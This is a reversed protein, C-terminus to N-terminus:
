PCHTEGSRPAFVQVSATQLTLVPEYECLLPGAIMTSWANNEDAFGEDDSQLGTSQKRAVILTFRHHHLDAYFQDLYEMNHSMAMEMLIVVEYDPVLPVDDLMRYMVLQRETIFLVRGNNMNASDVAQRITQLDDQVLAKNYSIYSGVYSISFYLPIAFALLSVIWPSQGWLVRENREIATQSSFFYAAIIALLVMYADMNHLDGGGGIKTSVVLGGVFLVITLSILGLWRLWHVGGTRARISFYIALWAPLSVLAIGPLIGLPYTSGPWLRDWLLPSSFSTSFYEPHAANGSWYIYFAQSLFAATIGTVSWLAPQKLYQLWNPYKDFPEELLFLAIALMAPVPFWNIRSMGAWISAALIALFSRWPHRASVGFLIIMVMVHLHYYVAGQFLFIFCWAGVFLGVARTLKLRWVLAYASGATLGIWLIAQWLRALELSSVPLLYPIAMLFYRTPHLFSLPPQIGYLSKGFLLSGYYYRSTESYGLSFPFDSVLRLKGWAAFMVGQLLLVFGFAGAWSSRTFWRLGLAALFSCWWLLWLSPFAQPLIGLFLNRRVFWLASLAVISLVIGFAKWIGGKPLFDLSSILPSDDVRGLPGLFLWLGAAFNLIYAALLIIWKSHWLVVELAEIRQYTQYFAFLSLIASFGLFIRSFDRSSPTTM